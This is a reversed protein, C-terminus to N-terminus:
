EAMEALQKLPPVLKFEDPRLCLFDEKRFPIRAVGHEDVEAEYRGGQLLHDSAGPIFFNISFTVVIQAM